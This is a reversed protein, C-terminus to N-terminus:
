VQQAAGTTIAKKLLPQLQREAERELADHQQDIKEEEGELVRLKSEIARMDVELERIRREIDRVTAHAADDERDEYDDLQDELADIKRELDREQKEYPRSRHRLSEYQPKTADLTAFLRDVDALTAADRIVYAKGDSEFWLFPSGWRSKMRGLTDFNAAGNVIAMDHRSYIYTFRDAAGGSLTLTAVLALLALRITRM